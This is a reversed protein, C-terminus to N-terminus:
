WRQRQFKVIRLKNRSTCFLLFDELIYVLIIVFLMWIMKDEIVIGEWTNSFMRKSINVYIFDLVILHLLDCLSLSCFNSFSRFRKQLWKPYILLLVSLIFIIYFPLYFMYDHLIEIEKLFRFFYLSYIPSYNSFHLYLKPAM